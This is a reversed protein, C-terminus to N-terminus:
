FGRTIGGDLQLVQGTLYGAQQSALFAVTGGLEESKGARGLPTEAVRREINHFQNFTPTIVTAPGIMNVTVGHSAVEGALQKLAMQVGSRFVTSIAHRPMVHKIGASTIGILRGWGTGLLLPTLERLAFLACELQDRYAAEWRTDDTEELFSKMPSPPRPTNLVMIDIGGARRLRESLAKVDDKRTIDGAVGEVISGSAAAIRSTTEDMREKNRAFVTVSVGEAALAESSALGLGSTGGIVLARKGAIGLDM